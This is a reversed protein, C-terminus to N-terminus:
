ALRRLLTRLSDRFETRISEQSEDFAPRATPRPQLHTMATEGKARVEQDDAGEYFAGTGFEQFYPYPPDVIDTGVLIEVGADSVAGVESHVSKLYSGTDVLPYGAIKEKWANVLPQAGAEGALVLAPLGMGDRLRNIKRTVAPRGILKMRARM